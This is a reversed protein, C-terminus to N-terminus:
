HVYNGELDVGFGHKLEDELREAILEEWETIPISYVNSDDDDTNEVTAIVEVAERERIIVSMEYWGDLDLESEPLERMFLPKYGREMRQKDFERELERTPVIDVRVSGDERPELFENNYSYDIDFSNVDIM